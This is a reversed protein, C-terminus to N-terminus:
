SAGGALLRAVEAADEEARHELRFKSGWLTPLGEIDFRDKTTVPDGHLLGLAEGRTVTPEAQTAAKRAEDALVRVFANIKPNHKEIHRLHADVLDVPSIQRERVMTAMLCLSSRNPM